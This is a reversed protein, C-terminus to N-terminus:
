SGTVSAGTLSGSLLGMILPFIVQTIVGLTGGLGSGFGFYDTAACGTLVTSSIISLIIATTLFRHTMAEGGHRAQRDPNAVPRVAVVAV